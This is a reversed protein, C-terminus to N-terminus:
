FGIYVCAFTGMLTQTGRIIKSTRNTAMKLQLRKTRLKMVANEFKRKLLLLKFVRLGFISVVYM